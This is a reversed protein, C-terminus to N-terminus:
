FPPSLRICRPLIFDALPFPRKFNPPGVGPSLTTKGVHVFRRNTSELGYPLNFLCADAERRLPAAMNSTLTSRHPEGFALPPPDAIRCSHSPNPVTSSTAAPSLTCPPPSPSYRNM